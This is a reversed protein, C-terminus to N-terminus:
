ARSDARRDKEFTSMQSQYEIEESLAPLTFRFTTGQGVESEVRIAGGHKAALDQCLSLGLGTGAEGATGTNTYQADIRFLKPLDEPPIGTGTDAVGVEVRQDAAHAFIRISGGPHTFKLANSVLNRLVTNIMAEDAYVMLRDECENKLTIQKREASETFLAAVDEVLDALEFEEPTYTMAGRQLRSWTLLNELLAYLKEASGQLKLMDTELQESSYSALNRSINQIYGLVTLFPSRLDHSIISFFKDKSVNAEHLLFNKEELEQKQAELLANKKALERQVNALENNLLTLENYAAADRANLEQTLETRSKIAARLLNMQENNIQLLDDHMQKVHEGTKAGMIVLYDDLTMGGFTLSEISNERVPFNFEWDFAAGHTRLEHLFNIAKGFSARDVVFNFSKGAPLQPTVGLGDQIVKLIKGNMECLIVIGPIPQTTKMNMM